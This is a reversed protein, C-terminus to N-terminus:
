FLLYKLMSKNLILEDDIILIGNNPTLRQGILKELERELKYRFIPKQGQANLIINPPKDPVPARSALGSLTYFCTIVLLIVIMILVIFLRRISCRAMRMLPIIHHREIIGSYVM